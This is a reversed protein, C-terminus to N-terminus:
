MAEWHLNQSPAAWYLESGGQSEHDGFEEGLRHFGYLEELDDTTLDDMFKEIVQVDAAASSYWKISDWYFRLHGEETKEREAYRFCLDFAEKNTNLATLLRGVAPKEVWLLVQSRYGM